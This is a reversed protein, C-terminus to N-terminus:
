IAACWTLSSPPWPTVYLLKLGLQDFSRGYFDRSADGLKRAEDLSGVTFPLSSLAFAPNAAGMAGGFADAAQTKGAVTAAPMEASKLGMEANYSPKIALKGSLRKEIEAAFFTVGEGPMATAPYETPMTWITQGQAPAIALVVAFAAAFAKILLTM